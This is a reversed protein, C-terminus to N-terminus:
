LGEVDVGHTEEEPATEVGGGDQVGGDPVPGCQAEYTEARYVDVDQDVGETNVEELNQDTVHGLGRLEQICLYGYYDIARTKATCRITEM